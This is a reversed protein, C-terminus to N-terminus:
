GVKEEDVRSLEGRLINVRGTRETRARRDEEAEAEKPM